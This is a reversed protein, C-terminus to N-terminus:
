THLSVTQMGGRVIETAEATEIPAGIALGDGVGVGDAEGVGEAVGVGFAFELTLAFKNAYEFEATSRFALESVSPIAANSVFSEFTAGGCIKLGASLSIESCGIQPNMQSAIVKPASDNNVGHTKGM